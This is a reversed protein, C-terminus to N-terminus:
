TDVMGLNEEGSIMVAVLDVINAEKTCRYKQPIEMIHPM